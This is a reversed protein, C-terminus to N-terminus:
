WVLAPALFRRLPRRKRRARGSLLRRRHETCGGRAVRAARLGTGCRTRNTRNSSSRRNGMPIAARIESALIPKTAWIESNTPKTAHTESGTSKTLRQRENQFATVGAPHVPPAAPGETLCGAHTDGNGNGNGDNGVSVAIAVVVAVAATTHSGVATAAPQRPHHHRPHSRQAAAVSLAAVLLSFSRRSNNNSNHRM